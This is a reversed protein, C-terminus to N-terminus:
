ISALYKVVVLNIEPYKQGLKAIELNLNQPLTKDLGVVEDAIEQAREITIRNALYENKIFSGVFEKLDPKM